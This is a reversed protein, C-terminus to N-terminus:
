FGGDILRHATQTFYAAELEPASDVVKVVLLFGPQGDVMREENGVDVVALGDVEEAFHVQDGEPIDALSKEIFAVMGADKLREPLRPGGALSTSIGPRGM